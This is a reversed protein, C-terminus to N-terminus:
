PVQNNHARDRRFRPHPPRTTTTENWTATAMNRAPRRSQRLRPCNLCGHTTAMCLSCHHMFACAQWTCTGHQFRFCFRSSSNPTKQGILEDDDKASKTGQYLLTDLEVSQGESKFLGKFRRRSYAQIVANLSPNLSGKKSLSNMLDQLYDLDDAHQLLVKTLQEGKERNVFKIVEM